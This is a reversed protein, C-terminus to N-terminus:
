TVTSNQGNTPIPIKSTSCNAHYHQIFYLHLSVEVRRVGTAVERDVEVLQTAQLASWLVTRYMYLINRLMM